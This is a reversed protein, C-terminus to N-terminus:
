LYYRSFFFTVPLLLLMLLLLVLSLVFLLLLLVFLEYYKCSMLCLVAVIVMLKSGTLTWEIGSYTRMGSSLHSSTSRDMLCVRSSWFTTEDERMENVLCHVRGAMTTELHESM